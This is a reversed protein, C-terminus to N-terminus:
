NTYIDTWYMAALFMDRVRERSKGRLGKTPKYTLEESIKDNIPYMNVSVEM